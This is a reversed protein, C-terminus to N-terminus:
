PAQSRAGWAAANRKAAVPSPPRREFPKGAQLRDFERDGGCNNLHPPLHPPERTVPSRLNQLYGPTSKSTGPLRFGLTSVRPNKKLM